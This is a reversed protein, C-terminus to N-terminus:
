AIVARFIGALKQRLEILKGHFFHSTQGSYYYDYQSELTKVWETVADAEVVEDEAGQIISVPMSYQGPYPYREVPPAILISHVCRSVQNARVGVVASGFSFGALILKSKGTESFVWNIVTDFDECEGTFDGHSGSSKGVGRYNFRLSDLGTERAARAVTTVVKNDMTGGHEPHPHCVVVLWDTLDKINQGEVRHGKRTMLELEGSAASILFRNDSSAFLSPAPNVIAM